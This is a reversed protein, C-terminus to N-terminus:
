KVFNDKDCNHKFHKFLSNSVLIDKNYVKRINKLNTEFRIAIFDRFTECLECLVNM